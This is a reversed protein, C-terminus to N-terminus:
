QHLEDAQEGVTNAHYGNVSSDLLVGLLTIERGHICVMLAHIFQGPNADM